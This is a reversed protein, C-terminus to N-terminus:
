GMLGFSQESWKEAALRKAALDAVTKPIQYCRLARFGTEPEVYTMIELNEPAFAFDYLSALQRAGQRFAPHTAPNPVREGEVFVARPNAALDALFDAGTRYAGAKNAAKLKGTQINMQDEPKSIYMIYRSITSTLLHRRTQRRVM